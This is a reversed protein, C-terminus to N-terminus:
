SYWADMADTGDVLEEGDIKLYYAIAMLTSKHHKYESKYLLRRGIGTDMEFKATSIKREKLIKRLRDGFPIVKDM